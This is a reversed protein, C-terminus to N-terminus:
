AGTGILVTVGASIIFVTMSLLLVANLTSFIFSVNKLIESCQRCDLLDSAVSALRTSLSWLALNIVVPTGIAIFATAGYIGVTNKLLSLAAAASSYAEGLAGGVVPAFVNAALKVGRVALNDASSAIVSKLTLFGAFLSAASSLIVLLTKRILECVSSIRPAPFAAGLAGLAGTVGILPSVVGSSIAQVAEAAALAAGRTSFALAPNGAATVIAALIPILTKEFAACASVATAAARIGEVAPAFVTLILFCGGLINLVGAGNKDDPFFGSCIGILATTGVAKLAGKLPKKCGNKLLDAFFDFFARPSSELVNEFEVDGCGLRAMYEKTQRSLVDSLKRAGSSDLQDRYYEGADFASAGVEFVFLVLAAVLIKM